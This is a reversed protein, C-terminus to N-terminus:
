KEDESWDLQQKRYYMISTLHVKSLDNNKIFDDVQMRNQFAYKIGNHTLIHVFNENRIGKIVEKLAVNENICEQLTEIDEDDEDFVEVECTGGFRTIKKLRNLVEQYKNM